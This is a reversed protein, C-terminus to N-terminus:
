PAAGFVRIIADPNWHAESRLKRLARARSMGAKSAFSLLHDDSLSEVLHKAMERMQRREVALLALVKREEKRAGRKYADLQADINGRKRLPVNVIAMDKTM